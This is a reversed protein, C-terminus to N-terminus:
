KLKLGSQEILKGWVARDSQLRASFENPGLNSRDVGTKEFRAMVEPSKVLEDIAANLREIVAKPTGAPAM